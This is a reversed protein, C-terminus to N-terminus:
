CESALLMAPLGCAHTHGIYALCHTSVKCPSPLAPALRSHQRILRPRLWASLTQPECRCLSMRLPSPTSTFHGLANVQAAIGDLIAARLVILKAGQKTQNLCSSTLLCVEELFALLCYLENLDNQLPTGTM